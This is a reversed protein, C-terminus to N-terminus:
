ASSGYLRGGGQLATATLRLREAIDEAAPCVVEGTHFIEDYTVEFIRDAM